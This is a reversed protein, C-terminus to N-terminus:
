RTAQNHVHSSSDILMVVLFGILEETSHNQCRDNQSAEKTHQFGIAKLCGAALLKM